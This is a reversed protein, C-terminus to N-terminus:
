GNSHVTDDILELNIRTNKRNGLKWFTYVKVGELALKIHETPIPEGSNRYHENNWEITKLTTSLLREVREEDEM